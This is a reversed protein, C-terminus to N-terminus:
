PLASALTVPTLRHEALTQLLRPLVALIVPEGAPTAAANGDHLLLIDGAALQKVLRQYVIQPNGIRTDYPRRTWSALQLGLRALVPDLLPNRLGATPRFFRPARGTIEALTAQAAAIDTAMRRASFAAFCWAHSDGHNEVHHGRAVIERCLAPHRRAARGICFFSAKAGAADLQDLVHPTVEPDPGDDITLAIEGRAAAAAPLRSVNPGLLTTRPLLGAAILLGQNAAIAGLAWPWAAPAALLGAAAAAHAVLSLKVFPTPKWPPPM